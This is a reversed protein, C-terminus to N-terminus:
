TALHSWPLPWQGGPGGALAEAPSKSPPPGHDLLISFPLILNAVPFKGAVTGM